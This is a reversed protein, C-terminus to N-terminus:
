EKQLVLFTYGNFLLAENERGGAVPLWREIISEAESDSLKLSWIYTSGHVIRSFSVVVWELVRAQFIVHISSGPLSCGMPNFLTPCLQSFLVYVIERERDPKNRKCCM